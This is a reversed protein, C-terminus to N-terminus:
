KWGGFCVRKKERSNHAFTFLYLTTLKKKKGSDTVKM